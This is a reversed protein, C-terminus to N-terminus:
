LNKYKEINDALEEKFTKIKDKMDEESTTLNGSKKGHKPSQYLEFIRQVTDNEEYFKHFQDPTLKSLQNFVDKIDEKSYGLSSMAEEVEILFGRYGGKIKAPISMYERIAGRYNKFQDQNMYDINLDLIAIKQEINDLRMREGPFRGVKSAVIEREHEFYDRAKQENLKLYELEWKVATAGGSNEVEKLLSDNRSSAKSLLSLERELERRSQYRAKLESVKLPASTIKIGKKSLVKRRANFNKVEKRIKANLDKTYRIAM